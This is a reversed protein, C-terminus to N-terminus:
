ETAPEPSLVTGLAAGRKKELQRGSFFVDSGAPQLEGPAQGQAGHRRGHRRDPEPHARADGRAPTRWCRDRTRARGTPKAPGLRTVGGPRLNSSKGGIWTTRM